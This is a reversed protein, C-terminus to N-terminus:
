RDTNLWDIIWNCEDFYDKIDEKHEVWSDFGEGGKMDEMEYIYFGGTGETDDELKVFWGKNSGQIIKGFTNFPIDAMM